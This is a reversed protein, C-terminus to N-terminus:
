KQKPYTPQVQKLRATKVLVSHNKHRMLIWLLKQQSFLKLASIIRIQRPYAQILEISLITLFLCHELRTNKRCTWRFIHAFSLSMLLM